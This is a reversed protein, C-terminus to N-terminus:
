LTESKESLYKYLLRVGNGSGGKTIYAEDKSLFSPGAIDLHIYPSKTFNELFKGATIQGANAGGLNKLDAIDSKMMEGYEEWFPFEVIREYTDFGAKQIADLEKRDANGMGAIAIQGVAKEAAGTLTALDIVLEPELRDSYTLADALVMRGEADTNLVEVTMGNMMKIIDGPAYANGDPRNDTAPILGIVNLPLKNSSISYMAGIVAAAGAMDAKMTDMSNATPKLSLGGTDYVIGKGVLVIPKENKANEPLWKMISFTPPTLSGKNVALLGGMQHEEITEKDFVLTEFGSKKGLTKIEDALVVSNLYSQPENVLDRTYYVAKILNNLKNSEDDSVISSNINITKLTNPKKDKDTIYKRFQYNALSIGEAMSTIVEKDETYDQITISELKSKNFMNCFCAGAKRAKENILYKEKANEKIYIYVSKTYLNLQLKYNKDKIEKSLYNVINEDLQLKSLDFNENIIFLVSDTVKTTNVKNIQM